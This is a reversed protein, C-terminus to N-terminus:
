VYYLIILKVTFKYYMNFLGIIDYQVLHKFPHVVSTQLPHLCYKIFVSPLQNLHNPKGYRTLMYIPQELVVSISSYLSMFFVNRLIINKSTEIYTLAENIRERFNFNRTKIIFSFHILILKVLM